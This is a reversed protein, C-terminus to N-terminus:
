GERKWIKRIYSESLGTAAAISKVDSGEGRMARLKQQRLRQILEGPRQPSLVSYVMSNNTKFHDIITKLSASPLNSEIFAEIEKRDLRPAPEPKATEGIEREMSRIRRRYRLNLWGMGSLAILFAAILGYHISRDNQPKFRREHFAIINDLNTIDLTYLGNISGAHLKSGERYLARRNFEVRPVLTSLKNNPLNYLFLGMDTAIVYDSESIVLMTHAKEIGEALRETSTGRFWLLAEATLLLSREQTVAGDMIPLDTAILGEVKGVGASFQYLRNGQSFYFMGYTRMENLLVVESEDTGKFLVTATKLSSDMGILRNGNAVLYLRSADLYRIDRCPIFNFGGAVQISKPADSDAELEGIDFVDLGNTCMFVKGNIERIYGDTFSSVPDKLLRDRHYIGSYTGTFNASISRISHNRFSYGYPSFEFVHMRGGSTIYFYDDTGAHYENRVEGPFPLLHSMGKQNHFRVGNTDIAVEGKEDIRLYGKRGDVRVPTAEEMRYVGDTTGAYVNGKGDKTVNYFFPRSLLSILSTDRLSQGYGTRSGAFASLICLCRLLAQKSPRAM